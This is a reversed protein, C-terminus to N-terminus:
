LAHFFYRFWASFFPADGKQEGAKKAGFKERGEREIFFPSKLKELLLQQGQEESKLRQIEEQIEAIEREQRMRDYWKKGNAM